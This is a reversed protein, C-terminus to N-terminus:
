PGWLDLKIGNSAALRLVSRRERQTLGGAVGMIVRGRSEKRLADDLCENKVRCHVCTLVTTDWPTVGSQSRGCISAAEWSTNSTSTSHQPRATSSHTQSM